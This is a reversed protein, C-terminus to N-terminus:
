FRWYPFSSTWQMLRWYRHYYLDPNKPDVEKALDFLELAKEVNGDEMFLTARKIITNVDNPAYHLSSDLDAVSDNVLNIL